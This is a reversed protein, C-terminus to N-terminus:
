GGNELDDGHSPSGQPYSIGRGPQPYDAGNSGNQHGFPIRCVGFAPTGGEESDGGLAPKIVRIKEMPLGLVKSLSRHVYHPVQTSTWLTLKGDAYRALASHPELFAHTAADKFFRDERIYDAAAFGRELDGFVLHIRREINAESARDHIKVDERVLAEHPDLIAPLIEYHVDILDLAQLATAEDVAAVAAVEDGIFRVKDVALPYEDQSVPLIGYRVPADAGTVVAKVGPLAEAKKTDIALIRAHAHPSRLIKGVLCRSAPIDACFLASGTVKAQSDTRPRDRGIVKYGDKKIM